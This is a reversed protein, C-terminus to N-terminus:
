MTQKRKMKHLRRLEKTADPLIERYYSDYLESQSLLGDVYTEYKRYIRSLRTIENDIRRKEERGHTLSRLQKLRVMLQKHKKRDIGRVNYQIIFYSNHLIFSLDYTM